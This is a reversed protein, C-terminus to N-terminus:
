REVLQGYRQQVAQASVGLVKGIDAWSWGADRCATVAEAIRTEAQLRTQAAEQLARYPAVPKLDDADLPANEFREALEDAHDLIYQLSMKPM